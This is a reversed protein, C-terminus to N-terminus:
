IVGSGYIDALYLPRSNIISISVALMQRQSFSPAFVVPSSLLFAPDLFRIVFSHYPGAQGDLM